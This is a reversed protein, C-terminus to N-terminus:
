LSYMNRDKYKAFCQVFQRLIPECYPILAAEATRRSVPSLRPAAEQVKKNNDLMRHLIGEMMPEFFQAKQAPDELHAAWEFIERPVLL